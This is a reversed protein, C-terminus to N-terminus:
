HPPWTGSNDLGQRDFNSDHRNDFRQDVGGGGYRQSKTDLGGNDHRAELNEGGYRTESVPTADGAPACHIGVCNPAAVDASPAATVALLAFLAGIM